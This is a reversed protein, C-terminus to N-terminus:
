VAKKLPSNEKKAAYLGAVTGLLSSVTVVGGSRLELTGSFAAFLTAGGMVLLWLGFLVTAAKFKHEPAIRAGIWIFTASLAFAFLVREPLEPYPDIFITESRLTVYLVWHIPFSTLFGAILGGPLVAIWRLWYTFNKAM